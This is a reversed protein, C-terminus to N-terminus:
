YALKLLNLFAFKLTYTCVSSLLNIWLSVSYHLLWCYLRCFLQHPQAPFFINKSITARCLQWSLILSFSKTVVQSKLLRQLLLTARWSTAIHFLFIIQQHNELIEAFFFISFKWFVKQQSSESCQFFLMSPFKFHKSWVAKIKLAKKIFILVFSFPVRQSQFFSIPSETNILVSSANPM